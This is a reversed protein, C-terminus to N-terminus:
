QCGDGDTANGDDCQEGKQPDVAGNGCMETSRCDASCGDGSTNNGDDCQEGPQIVSNGCALPVCLGGSCGGDVHHETADTYSCPTQDPVGACSSLQQPLACGGHQDCVEAGPCDVEPCHNVKPQLCAALTCLLALARM